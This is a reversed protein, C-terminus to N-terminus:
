KTLLKELKGEKEEFLTTKQELARQTFLVGALHDVEHQIIIARFGSFWKKHVKGTQDQFEILVKQARKVSGWIKPISLCGELKTKSKPKKVISSPPNLTSKSSQHHFSSNKEIKLRGDEHDMKWRGDDVTQVQIIRPNVFVETKSSPTPKSIFVSLNVGVQPAALGVGQPNVQARLTQDMDKVLIQLSADFQEVKKTLQALVPNPITVIKLM